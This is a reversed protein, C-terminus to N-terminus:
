VLLSWCVMKGKKMEATKLDCYAIVSV